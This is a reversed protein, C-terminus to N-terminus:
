TSEPPIAPPPPVTPIDSYKLLKQNMAVLDNITRQKNRDEILMAEILERSEACEEDAKDRAVTMFELRTELQGVKVSMEALKTAYDDARAQATHGRDTANKLAENLSKMLSSEAGDNEKNKKRERIDSYVKNGIIYIMWCAGVVLAGFNGKPELADM